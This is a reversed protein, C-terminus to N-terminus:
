AGGKAPPMTALAGVLMTAPLLPWVWWPAGAGISAAVGVAPTQCLLSWLIYGFRSM